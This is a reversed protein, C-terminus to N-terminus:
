HTAIPVVRTAWPSMQVVLMRTVPRAPSSLLLQLIIWKLNPTRMRYLLKLQSRSSQGAKDMMYKLPFCLWDAITVVPLNKKAGKSTKQCSLLYKEQTKAQSLLFPHVSPHLPSTLLSMSLLCSVLLCASSCVGSKWVASCPSLLCPGDEGDTIPHNPQNSLKQWFWFEAITTVLSLLLSVLRKEAATQIIQLKIRELLLTQILVSATFGVWGALVCLPQKWIM